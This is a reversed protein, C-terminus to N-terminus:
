NKIKKEKSINGYYRKLLYAGLMLVLFGIAIMAIGFKIGAFITIMAFFILTIGFAIFGTNNM